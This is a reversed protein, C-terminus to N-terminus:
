RLFLVCMGCIALYLCNLEWINDCGAEKRRVIREVHKSWDDVTITSSLGITKNFRSIQYIILLSAQLCTSRVRQKMNWTSEQNILRGRGVVTDVTYPLM